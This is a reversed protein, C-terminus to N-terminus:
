AASWRKVNTALAIKNTYTITQQPDNISAGAYANTTTITRPSIDGSCDLTGGGMESLNLTTITGSSNYHLTGSRVSATTMGTAGNITSDGGNQNLTTPALDMVLTGDTFNVTTVTSLAYSHVSGNAIRLTTVTAVDAGHPALGVSGSHVEIGTITSGKLLLAELGLGPEVSQGTTFVEVTGAVSGLDLKIRGCGLGTGRGIYVNTASIALYDARYEPYGGNANTKPLGITGTYSASIHLATLTVASQAMGYLVPVDSNDFYPTDANVPVAGTDWNTADSWHNPGTATVTHVIALAGNGVTAESVAITMPLGATSATIVVTTATAVAAAEAFEPVDSGLRNSTYGTGLTTGNYMATLQTAIDSIAFSAGVTLTLTKGNILINATDAAAWVGSVTITWVDYTALARGLWRPTAM